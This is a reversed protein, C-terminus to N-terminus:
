APDSPGPDGGIRYRVVSEVGDPDREVVWTSKGDAAVVRTTESLIAVGLPVGRPDLVLHKRQNGAARLGVWVTGDDGVVLSSVPPYVPPVPAEERFLRALARSEIRAVRAEIVSDALPPPIPVGVFPYSRAYVTDGLAEQLVVEFRGGHRGEIHKKVTALYDGDPSVEHLAGRLFPTSSAYQGTATRMRVYPVGPVEAVLLIVQGSPNIRVYRRATPSVPLEPPEGPVVSSAYISGDAYLAVPLIRSFAVPSGDELIEAPVADRPLPVTRVIRAPLTGYVLQEQLPDYIWLTDGLWGFQEVSAFEGVGGSRRGFRGVRAGKADFVVLSAAEAQSVAMSGDGSVAVSGIRTLSASAGDIRLEAELRFEPVSDWPTLEPAVAGQDSPPAELEGNVAAAVLPELLRSRPLRLGNVLVTPTGTGGVARAAASDDSIVTLPASM